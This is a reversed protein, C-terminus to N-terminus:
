KRRNKRVTVTKATRTELASAFGMARIIPKPTLRKTEIV